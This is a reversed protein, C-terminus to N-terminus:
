PMRSPLFLSVDDGTVRLQYTCDGLIAPDRTVVVHYIGSKVFSGTWFLDGAMQQNVTGEGVAHFEINQRWLELQAPTWLAFSICHPPNASARVAIAADDGEDRFAYWHVENARLPLTKGVPPLPEEPSSVIGEREASPVAVPSLPPTAMASPETVPTATPKIVCGNAPTAVPPLPQIFTLLPFSVQSGQITLMYNSLGRGSSEILVYYIGSEVFSGTWYLDDHFISSPSGAGVPEVQEGRQWEAMQTPTLVAFTAGNNPEVSLRIRIPTDDGEDRFAYWHHDGDALAIWADIPSYPATPENSIRQACSLLAGNEAVVPIANMLFLIGALIMGILPYALSTGGNRRLTSQKRM